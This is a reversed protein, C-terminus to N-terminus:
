TYLMFRLCIAVVSFIYFYLCVRDIFQAFYKWLFEMNKESELLKFNDVVNRFKDAPLNPFQQKFPSSRGHGNAMKHEANNTNTPTVMAARAINWKSIKTQECKNEIVTETNKFSVNQNTMAENLGPFAKEMACPSLGFAYMYKSSILYRTRRGMKHKGRMYHINIVTMALLSSLATQIVAACVFYGISPFNLSSAPLIDSISGFSVIEALLITISFSIKEGSEVPLVFVFSSMCYLLLNPMVFIITYFLNRREIHIQMTMVDFFRFGKWNRSSTNIRVPRVLAWEDHEKYYALDAYNMEVQPNKGIIYVANDLNWPGFTINCKHSDYPFLTVDFSCSVQVTVFSSWCSVLGSGHYVAQRDFAQYAVDVADLAIDATWFTNKPVLVSQIGGFDSVNWRASESHYYYYLWLKVTILGDKENVDLLQYLDMFIYVTNDLLDAPPTYKPLSSKLKEILRKEHEVGNTLNYITPGRNYKCNTTSSILLSILLFRLM